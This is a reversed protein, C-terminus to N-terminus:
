KSLESLDIHAHRGMAMGVFTHVNDTNYIYTYTEKQAM